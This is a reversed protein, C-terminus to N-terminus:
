REDNGKGPVMYEFNVKDVKQLTWMVCEQGLKTGTEVALLRITDRNVEEAFAWVETTYEAFAHGESNRYMGVHDTTTAGGFRVTFDEQLQKIQQSRTIFNVQNGWKNRDPVFISVKIM